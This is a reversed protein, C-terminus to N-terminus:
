LSEFLPLVERETYGIDLASGRAREAKLYVVNKYNDGQPFEAAKSTAPIYIYHGGTEKSIEDLIGTKDIALKYYLGAQAIADSVRKYNIRTHERKKKDVRHIWLM